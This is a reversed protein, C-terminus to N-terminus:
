TFVLLFLHPLLFECTSRYISLIDMAISHAIAFFQFKWWFLLYNPDLIIFWHFSGFTHMDVFLNWVNVAVHVISICINLSVIGIICHYGEYLIVFYLVCHMTWLYGCLYHVRCLLLPIKPWVKLSITEEFWCYFM